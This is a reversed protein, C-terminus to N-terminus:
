LTDYIMSHLLNLHMPIEDLNASTTVLPISTPSQSSSGSRNLNQWGQGSNQLRAAGKDWLSSGKLWVDMWEDMM